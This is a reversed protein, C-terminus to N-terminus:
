YFFRGGELMQDFSIKPYRCIFAKLRNEHPTVYPNVFIAPYTQVSDFVKKFGEYSRENGLQILINGHLNNKSWFYYSNHGSAVLPFNYKRGYFELAGAQGYNEGAIITQVKESPSLTNYAAAVMNVKEPWGIRDALLQPLAPKNGRELETNIGLIRTYSKVQEYSFYPLILPLSILATSILIFVLPYIGWRINKKIFFNEWFIAGATFIIPYAYSLRDARSTASLLFFLFSILFFVSIFRYQKYNKNFLFYISGSLWILVAAPSVNIIQGLIFQLPPTYVNKELTINRYFEVTPFKNIIQWIINPLVLIFIILCAYLFYRSFFLKKYGMVFLSIFMFLAILMFTHKNMIGLGIIIGISYWNKLDNQNIMKLLFYFMLLTLLPEFANMSYFGGFAILVPVTMVTVASIIQATKGGKLQRTLIGTMFVSCSLAFAPLFRLAYISDGFVSKFVTLLFPAVPPHDVYGFAPRNACAIYYLEDIFYGYSKNFSSLYTILFTILSLLLLVKNEKLTTRFDM